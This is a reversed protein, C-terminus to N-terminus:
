QGVARKMAELMSTPAPAADASTGGTVPRIEQKRPAFAKLEKEVEKLVDDAQKKAAAADGPRDGQLWRLKLKEQVRSAKLTYDPDSKSRVSEWETLAGQVATVARQQAEVTQRQQAADNDRKQQETHLSGRARHRALEQADEQSLYGAQVRQQLDNPLVAGTAQLLAEYFPKIADLAAFPDAKMLRMIEFGQNVEDKNLGAEAVYTSIRDYAQAKPQVEAIQEDREKIGGLLQKVRRRTKSHMRRLEDDTVEGLEEGTDADDEPKKGGEAAPAPDSEAGQEGGSESGSSKEKGPMAARVADLLSAPKKEDKGAAPSSVAAQNGDQNAEPAKTEAAVSSVVTKETTTDAPSDSDM